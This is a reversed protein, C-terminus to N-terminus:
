TNHGRFLLGTGIEVDRWTRKRYYRIRSDRDALARCIWQTRDTSANDWIIVEFDEFRESLVSEPAKEVYGEGNHVPLGVSVKPTPNV